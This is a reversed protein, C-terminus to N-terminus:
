DPQVAVRAWVHAEDLQVATKTHLVDAGLPEELMWDVVDVLTNLTLGEVLIQERTPAPVCVARDGRTCTVFSDGADVGRAATASIGRSALRSEIERADLTTVIDLEGLCMDAVIEPAYPQLALPAQSSFTARRDRIRRQTTSYRLQDAPRVGAQTMAAHHHREDDLRQTARHESRDLVEVYVGNELWAQARGHEKATGILSRVEAHYSEVPVPCRVLRMRDHGDSGLGVGDGILTQLGLLRKRQRASRSNLASGSKCEHLRWRRPEWDDIVLLDAVRLCNTLDCLVAPVGEGHWLSALTKLESNLGPGTALQAVPRGDGLVAIAARNYELVRWVGADAIGRLVALLARATDREYSVAKVQASASRKTAESSSTKIQDRLSAIISELRAVHAEGRQVGAFLVSHWTRLALPSDLQQSLELLRVVAPKQADWLPHQRIQLDRIWAKKDVVLPKM